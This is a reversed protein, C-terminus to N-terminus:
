NSDKNGKLFTSKFRGFITELRFLSEAALNHCNYEKTVFIEKMSQKYELSLFDSSFPILDFNFDHVKAFYQLIKDEKIHYKIMFTRQPYFVLHFVRNTPKKVKSLETIVRVVLDLMNKLPPIVFIMLPYDTEALKSVLAESIFQLDLKRDQFQEIQIILNILMRLDEPVVISKYARRSPDIKDVLKMLNELM